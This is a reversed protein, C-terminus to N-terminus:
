TFGREVKKNADLFPIAVAALSPASFIDYHTRGPLIALQAPKSRGSGDWGGDRKGGDLRGFVEFAHSQPFM